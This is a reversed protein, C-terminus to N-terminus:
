RFVPNFSNFEDVSGRQKVERLSILIITKHGIRYRDVPVGPICRYNLLFEGDGWAQDQYAIIHDQLFKVRQRKKFRAKEGRTDLLELTSEYVLVEYLGQNRMRNWLGTIAKKGAQLLNGWPLSMVVEDFPSSSTTAIFPNQKGM